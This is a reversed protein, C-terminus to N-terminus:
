RSSERELVHFIEPAQTRLRERQQRQWEDAVNGHFVAFAEAYFDRLNGLSYGEAVGASRFRQERAYPRARYRDYMERITLRVRAGHPDVTAHRTRSDTWRLRTTRANERNIADVPDSAALLRRMPIRPGIRLDDWAHAMEHRITQVGAGRRMRIVRLSAIWHAHTGAPGHETIHGLQGVPLHALEPPLGESGWFRVGARRMLALQRPTFVRLAELLRQQLEDSFGAGQTMQAVLSERTERAARNQRALVRTTALNGAAQQLSIVAATSLPLSLPSAAARGPAEPAPTSAPEATVKM